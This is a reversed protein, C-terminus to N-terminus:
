NEAYAKMAAREEDSYRLIANRAWQSQGNQSWALLKTNMGIQKGNMIKTIPQPSSQEGEFEELIEAARHILRAPKLETRSKEVDLWVEKEVGSACFESARMLRKAEQLRNPDKFTLSAISGKERIASLCSYEESAIGIKELAAKANKLVTASDSDWGLNGIRAYPRQEHPIQGLWDNTDPRATNRCPTPSRDLGPPSHTTERLSAVDSDIQTLRTEDAHQKADLALVRTKLEEVQTQLQNTEQARQANAQELALCRSDVHAGFASLAKGVADGVFSMQERSLPPDEDRDERMRAKAPSGTAPNPLRSQAGFFRDM